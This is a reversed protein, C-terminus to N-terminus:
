TPTSPPALHSHLDYHYTPPDPPTTENTTHITATPQDYTRSILKDAQDDIDSVLLPPIMVATTHPHQTNM